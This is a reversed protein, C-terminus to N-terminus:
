KRLVLWFENSGKRTPYLREIEVETYRLTRLSTLLVRASAPTFYWAHVDIYTGNATRYEELAAATRTEFDEMYTGHAKAWHQASENHTTLIRHELVSKLSHLTRREEYAALVDALTSENLFHDFCYRKDPVLLFYRGRPRLLREVNRLHTVLDPQHELCHSSLIFDFQRDVIGLDGTESVYHINPVDAQSIQLSAAREVLEAHTLVDFYKTRRGRLLPNCFPGIELAEAGQPILAAFDARSALSNARRGEEAGFTQYHEALARDSLGSLDANHLLYDRSEFEPPLELTARNALLPM